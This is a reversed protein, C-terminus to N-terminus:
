NRSILKFEINATPDTGCLQSDSLEIEFRADPDDVFYPSEYIKVNKGRGGRYIEM